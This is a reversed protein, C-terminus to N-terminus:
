GPGGADAAGEAGAPLDPLAGAFHCAALHDGQGVAVGAEEGGKSWASTGAVEHAVLEPRERRCIDQVYPCRPHFACGPPVNVLSPPQGKIPNLRGTREQDLRAISSMLGMTYPHQPQYYLDDVSAEEVVRGAYMVAVRDAQEAVVGLDHTILIMAMKFEEQLSSLLDLVQAQVTVDLATTPEDAILLAPNMALAMAIMVRQRMGGSFHHPYDGTREAANPIGVIEMMEVARRMAARRGVRAHARVAEAIQSGVSFVPNLSTLPDQFVMGIRNGRILRLESEQLDLLNRGEFTISGSVVKGPPSILGMTALASVSKGSGSEGVIALTEGPAVSYSIGDVAKVVGFDTFFHVRLGRVDLLADAGLSTARGPAQAPNGAV